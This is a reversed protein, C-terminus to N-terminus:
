LFTLTTMLLSPTRCEGDKGSGQFSFSLPKPDIKSPPPSNETFATVPAESRHQARTTRGRGNAAKSSKQVGSLYTASPHSLSRLHSEFPKPWGRATMRQSFDLRLTQFTRDRDESGYFNDIFVDDFDNAIHSIQTHNSQRIREVDNHELYAYAGKWRKGLAHAGDTLPRRWVKIKEFPTLSDYDNSLEQNESTTFHYKFFNVAYLVWNLNVDIKNQGKFIPEETATAYMAKQTVGFSFARTPITPTFRLHSLAIQIATLLPDHIDQKYSCIYSLLNTDKAFTELAQINKSTIDGEADRIVHGSAFSEVILDKLVHLCRKELISKGQGFKAGRRLCKRRHQYTSRLSNNNTGPVLDFHQTFKARWIPSRDSYIANRTGHCARAFSAIDQDCLHEAIIANVSYLDTLGKLRSHTM